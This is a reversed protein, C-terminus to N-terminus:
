SIYKIFVPKSANIVRAFLFGSSLPKEFDTNAPNVPGSGAVEPTVSLLSM